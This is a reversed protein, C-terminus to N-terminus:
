INVYIVVGVKKTVHGEATTCNSTNTKESFPNTALYTSVEYKLLVIM